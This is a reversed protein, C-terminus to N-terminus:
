FFFFFASGAYASLLNGVDAIILALPFIDLQYTQVVKSFFAKWMKVCGDDVCYVFEEDCVIFVEVFQVLVEYVSHLQYCGFLNGSQSLSVRVEGNYADVGMGGVIPMLSDNAHFLGVLPMIVLDLFLVSLYLSMM